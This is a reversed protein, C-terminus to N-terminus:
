AACILLAPLHIGIPYESTMLSIVCLVCLVCLASTVCPYVPVTLMDPVGGGAPQVIAYLSACGGQGFAQLFVACLELWHCVWKHSIFGHCYLENAAIPVAM